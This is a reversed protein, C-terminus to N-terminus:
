KKREKEIEIPDTDGARFVPPVPYGGLPICVGYHEELKSEIAALRKDGKSVYTEIEILHATRGNEEPTSSTVISTVKIGQEKLMDIVRARSLPGEVQVVIFSHDDGSENYEMRGVILAKRGVQDFPLKAGYPLAGAIMMLHGSEPNPDQHLLNLWWQNQTQESPNSPDADRPWPIVAIAEPDNRVASIAAMPTSVRQMPLVSGFYDKAMDWCHEEGTKYAVHVHLGKQLMSVAGVLERWIGVIAAQPLIGTHRELLRRIMRAERAPHVIPRNSKQKEISVDRILSAREMLLDHIQNDLSDIKQRIEDLKSSM